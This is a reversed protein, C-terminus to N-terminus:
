VQYASDLMFSVFKVYTDLQKVGNDKLRKRMKKRGKCMPLASQTVYQNKRVSRCCLEPLRPSDSLCM